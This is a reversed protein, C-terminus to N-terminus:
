ERYAQVSGNKVATKLLAYDRETQDAYAFAFKTMAEDFEESMGVYGSITCQDGTKAHARALVRGCTKACLCLLGPDFTDLLPKIKTDRLQRVYFQFHGAPVKVTVWGLFLDSAPQMM